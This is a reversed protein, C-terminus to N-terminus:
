PRHELVVCRCNFHQPPPESFTMSRWGEPRENIWRAYRRLGRFIPGTHLAATAYLLAALEINGAASQLVASTTLLVMSGIQFRPSM